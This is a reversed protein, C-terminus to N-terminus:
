EHGGGHDRQVQGIVMADHVPRIGCTEKRVVRFEKGLRAAQKESGEKLKTGGPTSSLQPLIGRDTDERRHGEQAGSHGPSTRPIGEVAGQALQLPRVQLGPGALHQRCHREQQGEAAQHTPRADAVARHRGAFEAMARFRVSSGSASRPPRMGLASRVTAAVQMGHMDIGRFCRHIVHLADEGTM